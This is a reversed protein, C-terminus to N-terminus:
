FQQLSYGCHIRRVVRDTLADDDGLLVKLGNVVAIATNVCIRGITVDVNNVAQHVVVDCAGNGAAKFRPKLEIYLEVITLHQLHFIM